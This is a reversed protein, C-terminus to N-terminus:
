IINIIIIIIKRILSNEDYMNKIVNKGHINFLILYNGIINCILNCYEFFIVSLLKLYITCPNYLISIYM